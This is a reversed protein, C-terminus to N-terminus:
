NVIYIDVAKLDFKSANSFPALFYFFVKCLTEELASTFFWLKPLAPTM